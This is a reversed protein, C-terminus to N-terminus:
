RCVNILHSFSFPLHRQARRGYPDFFFSVRQPADVQRDPDRSGHRLHDPHLGEVVLSDPRIHGPKLQLKGLFHVAKAHLFALLFQGYGAPSQPQDNVLFVPGHPILPVTLQQRLAAGPIQSIHLCVPLSRGVVSSAPVSVHPLLQSHGHILQDVAQALPKRREHFVSLGHGNPILVPPGACLLGVFIYGKIKGVPPIAHEHIM